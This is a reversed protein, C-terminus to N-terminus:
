FHPFMIIRWGYLYKCKGDNMPADKLLQKCHVIVSNTGHDFVSKWEINSIELYGNDLVISWSKAVVLEEVFTKPGEVDGDDSESM